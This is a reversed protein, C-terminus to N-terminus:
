AFLSMNSEDEWSSNCADALVALPYTVFMSAVALLMAVSAMAFTISALVPLVPIVFTLIGTVVSAVLINTVADNDKDNAIAMFTNTYPSIAFKTCGWFFSGYGRSLSLTASM